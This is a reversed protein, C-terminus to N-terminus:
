NKNKVGIISPPTVEQAKHASLQEQVNKEQLKLGKEEVRNYWLKHLFVLNTYINYKRDRLKCIFATNNKVFSCYTQSLATFVIEEDAIGKTFNMALAECQNLAKICKNYLDPNALYFKIDNDYQSKEDTSIEDEYFDTVKYDSYKFGKARISAYFEDITPLIEKAYKESLDLARSRSERICRTELDNKALKIQYFVLGGLIVLFFQFLVNLFDLINIPTATSDIKISFTIKWLLTAIPIVLFFIIIFFSYKKLNDVFSKITM